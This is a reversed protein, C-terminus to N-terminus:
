DIREDKNVEVKNSILENIYKRQQSTLENMNLLLDILKNVSIDSRKILEKLFKNEEDKDKIIEKLDSINRNDQEIKDCLDEYLHYPKKM